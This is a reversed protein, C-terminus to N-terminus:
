DFGKLSSSFARSALTGGVLSHSDFGMINVKVYCVVLYFLLM